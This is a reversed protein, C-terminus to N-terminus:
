WPLPVYRIELYPSGTVQASRDFDLDFHVKKGAFDRFWGTLDFNATISARLDGLEISVQKGDESTLTFTASPNASFSISVHLKVSKVFAPLVEDAEYGYPTAAFEVAMAQEPLAQLVVVFLIIGILLYALARM